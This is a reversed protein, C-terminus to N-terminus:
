MTVIRMAYMMGYDSQTSGQSGTFGTSGTDGKSGTFGAGTAGTAGTDGKSGTYGTNTKKWAGPTTYYTFSEGSTPDTYQQLNSPTSPFDIAM